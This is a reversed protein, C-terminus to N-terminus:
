IMRLAAFLLVVVFAIVIWNGWAPMFQGFMWLVLWVACCGTLIIAFATVFRMLTPERYNPM